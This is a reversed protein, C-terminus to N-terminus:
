SGEVAVPERFGFVIYVTSSVARGERRAPRFKWEQAAELSVTDFGFAGRVIRSDTVNGEQGVDVEVLVVQGTHSAATPPYLPTPTLVPFPVEESASAVDEPVEGRAPADYSTPPRFLGAVLVRSEVPVLEDKGEPKARAPAFHWRGVANGLLEAYPPTSRLTTVSGVRGSEDIRLELLVQGGGATQPQVTEVPLTGSRYHAPEFDRETWAFAMAFLAMCGAKHLM